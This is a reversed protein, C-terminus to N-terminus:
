IKRAKILMHWGLNRELAKFVDYPMAQFWDQKEYIHQKYADVKYPFIHDQRIDTIIFYPALLERVESQDYTFAIPCGFQAEPQDLGADIMAAKWSNRAYLMLRLEGDEKLTKHIAAIAREPSPTHHLVGFSYALEFHNCPVSQDIEEANASILNGDLGYLAFRTKAIKLSEESLEVGTYQAGNRAFNVADTGIGCGIELVKKEQWKPFDAFAPIHPEVFYKRKEVQDFYEKTGVPEKSHRINCPRKNWYNKVSELMELATLHDQSM